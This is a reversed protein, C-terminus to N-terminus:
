GTYIHDPVLKIMGKHARLKMTEFFREANSKRAYFVKRYERLKGDRRSKYIWGVIWREKYAM